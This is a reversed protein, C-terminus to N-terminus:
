WNDIQCLIGSYGIRTTQLRSTRGETPLNKSCQGSQIMEPSRVVNGQDHICSNCEITTQASLIRLGHAHWWTVMGWAHHESFGEGEILKPKALTGDIFALKNKAKLATHVTKDWLDDNKGDFGGNQNIYRTRRVFSPLISLTTWNRVEEQRRRQDHNSQPTIIASPHEFPKSQHWSWFRSPSILKTDIHIGM